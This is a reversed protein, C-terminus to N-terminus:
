KLTAITHELGEVWTMRKAKAQAMCRNFASHDGGDEKNSARLASQLLTNTRRTFEAASEFMQDQNM